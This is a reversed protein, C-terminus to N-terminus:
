EIADQCLSLYNLVRQGAALQQNRFYGLATLKALSYPNLM